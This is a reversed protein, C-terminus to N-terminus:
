SYGWNICLQMYETGVGLWESTLDVAVPLTVAASFDETINNSSIRAFIITGM